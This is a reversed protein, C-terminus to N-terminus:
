RDRTWHERLLRLPVANLARQFDDRSTAKKFHHWLILADVGAKKTEVLSAELAPADLWGDFAGSTDPYWLCVLALLPKTPAIRRAEAVNDTVYAAADDYTIVPLGPSREGRPLVKRTQYMVLVTVDQLDVLWRLEDNMAKWRNPESWTYQGYLSGAPLGYMALEARPRLRRVETFTRELWLRVAGDYTRKLIREREEVSRGALLGSENASLWDHWLDAHRPGQDTRPYLGPGDTRDGWVLPITEIDFCIVGRFGLDPVHRDLVSRLTQAYAADFEPSRTLGLGTTRIDEMFWQEYLFVFDRSVPVPGFSVEAAWDPARRYKREYEDTIGAWYVM